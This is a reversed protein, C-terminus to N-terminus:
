VILFKKIKDMDSELSKVRSELTESEAEPQGSKAGSIVDSRFFRVGLRSDSRGPGFGGVLVGYAACGGIGVLRGDSSRSSTWSYKWESQEPYKGTKEFYCKIFWVYEAFNLMSDEGVLEKCENLDKGYHEIEDSVEITRPHCKEKTYFAEKKYWDISYLLNGSGLKNNCEKIIQKATKNPFTIQM